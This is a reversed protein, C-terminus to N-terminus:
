FLSLILIKPPNILIAHKIPQIIAANIKDISSIKENKNWKEMKALTLEEDEFLKKGNSDFAVGKYHGKERDTDIINVITATTATNAVPMLEYDLLANILTSKGSSMTAVVNIEFRQDKAKQFAQIINKDKLQVVPGKKIEEFIKDVEAETDSVSPTCNHKFHEIHIGVQPTSLGSQLDEFDAMTGTFEISFNKDQYENVLISSLDGAWEQLRKEGFNLSSNAKPKKGDVIVETTKTFPNYKIKVTKM